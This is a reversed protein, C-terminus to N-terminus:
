QTQIDLTMNTIIAMTSLGLEDNVVSLIASDYEEFKDPYVNGGPRGFLIGSINELVGCASLTRLFRQVELPSPAEESTELFLIAGKWQEETPWVETGRLWDLVELCGGILHGQSVGKGQLFRWGTCNSLKRKINQNEKNEWELREVTQGGQNQPIVGPIESSFVIERFSDSLYKHMGGNEAFGCMISSGYFSVIGAKFCALHTVTTDSFGIFPKPNARIIDYDIFPLIRISDDGGITSIIGDISPDAFAQM